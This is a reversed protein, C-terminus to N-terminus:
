RGRRYARYIAGGITGAILFPMAMLGIISYNFGAALGAKDGAVAEACGPCAHATAPVLVALIALAPATFIRRM